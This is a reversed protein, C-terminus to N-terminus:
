LNKNLKRHKNLREVLHTDVYKILSYLFQTVGLKRQNEDFWLILKEIQSYEYKHFDRLKQFEHLTINSAIYNKCVMFDSGSTVEIEVNELQHPVLQVQFNRLLKILSFIPDKSAVFSFYIVTGKLLDDIRAIECLSARFLSARIQDPKEKLYQHQDILEIPSAFFRASKLAEQISKYEKNAM